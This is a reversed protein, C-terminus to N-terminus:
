SDSSRQIDAAEIPHSADSYFQELSRLAGMDNPNKELIHLFERYALEQKGSRLNTQALGPRLLDRLLILDFHDDSSEGGPRRGNSV